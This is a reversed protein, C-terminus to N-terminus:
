RRNNGRGGGRGGGIGGGGGGGRGGGRSKNGRQTFVNRGSGRVKNGGKNKNNYGGGDQSNYGQNNDEEYDDYENKNDYYQQNDQYNNSNSDNNNSLYNNGYSGQPPGPPGGMPYPGGMPGGPGMMPGSPGMMPGSPGGMMGMMTPAGGMMPGGPNMGMMMMGPGPGMMMGPNQFNGMPAQQPVIPNFQSVTPDPQVQGFPVPAQTPTVQSPQSVNPDPTVQSPAQSPPPPPAVPNPITEQSPQTNPAPQLPNSPNMGLLPVSAPDISTSSQSNSAGATAVDEAINVVNSNSGSLLTKFLDTSESANQKIWDLINTAQSASMTAVDVDATDEPASPEPAPPPPPTPNELKKKEEVKAAAVKYVEEISYNEDDEDEDSIPEAGTDATVFFQSESSKRSLSVGPRSHGQQSVPVKKVPSLTLKKTEPDDIELYKRYVKVKVPDIAELESLYTILGLQEKRSLTKFNRLLDKVDQESLQDMGEDKHVDDNEYSSQLMDLGGVSSTANNSASYHKEKPPEEVPPPHSEEADGGQLQSLINKTNVEKGTAEAQAKAMKIVEEILVELEENSVDPRGQAVLAAAIQKAIAEKDILDVSDQEGSEEEAPKEIKPAHFLLAEVSKIAHRTANVMHREVVGTMLQGRLKEKITEFTVCNDEHMLLVSSTPKNKEMALAKSLLEVCKPGLSGLQNELVTLTRLVTIINLPAETFVKGSPPLHSHSMGPPLFPGPPMPMRPMFRPRPGGPYMMHGPPFRPPYPLGHPPPFPPMHPPGYPMMDEPPYDDRERERERRPSLERERRPSLYRERERDRRSPSRERRPSPSRSRRSSERERRPAVPRPSPSRTKRSRIESGTLSAWTNKLDTVPSRSRLSESTIGLRDKLAKKKELLDSDHLEKMRKDWFDIWEPKFDYTNPDKGEAQLEKYRRNWFTKWEEPYLPHKEPNKEHYKLKDLLEIEIRALEEKFEELKSHVKQRRIDEYSRESSRDRSIRARRAPPEEVKRERHPYPLERGRYVPPSRSRSRHSSGRHPPVRGQPRDVPHPKVPLHGERGDRADRFDRRPSRSRRHPHRGPPSPRRDRERSRSRGRNNPRAGPVRERSRPRGRHSDYGGRRYRPPSGRGGRGGRGSPSSRRYPRNRPSRSRSRPNSSVSIPSTGRIPFKDNSNTSSVSSLSDRRPRKVKVGIEKDFVIEPSSKRFLRGTPKKGAYLSPPTVERKKPRPPPPSPPYDIALQEPRLVYKFNIFQKWVEVEDPDESFHPGTNIENMIAMKGDANMMQENSVSMPKMRGYKKEIKAAIRRVISGVGEKNEIVKPFKDIPAFVNPFFRRFYNIHHNPSGVHTIINFSTGKKECLMCMYSVRVRPKTPDDLEYENVIEVLYELGILAPEVHEDLANQIECPAPEVIGEMGPPVPEGPVTYTATDKQSGFELVRTFNERKFSEREMVSVHKSDNVHVLFENRGILKVGCPHCQYNPESNASGGSKTFLFGFTGDKLNITRSLYLKELELLESLKGEKSMDEGEAM